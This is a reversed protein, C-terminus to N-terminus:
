NNEIIKHTLQQRRLLANPDYRMDDVILRTKEPELGPLFM